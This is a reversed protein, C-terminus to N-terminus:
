LSTRHDYKLDLSIRFYVRAGRFSGGEWIPEHMRQVLNMEYLHACIQFDNGGGANTPIFWKNLPMACIREYYYDLDLTPFAFKELAMYLATEKNLLLTDM